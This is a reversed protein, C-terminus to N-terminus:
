KICRNADTDGELWDLGQQVLSEFENNQQACRQVAKRRTRTWGLAGGLLRHKATCWVTYEMTGEKNRSVVTYRQKKM